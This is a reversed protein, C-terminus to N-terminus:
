FFVKIHYYLITQGVFFITFIWFFFISMFSVETKKKEFHKGLEKIGKLFPPAQLGCNFHM